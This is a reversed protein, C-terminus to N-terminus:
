IMPIEVGGNPAAVLGCTAELLEAPDADFLGVLFRMDAVPHMWCVTEPYKGCRDYVNM